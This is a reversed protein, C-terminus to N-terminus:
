FFFFFVKAYVESEFEQKETILKESQVLCKQAEEKMQEFAETKKM